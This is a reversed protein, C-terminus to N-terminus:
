SFLLVVNSRTFINSSCGPCAAEVSGGENAKDLFPKIIIPALFAGITYMFHFSQILPRSKEPGWVQLLIAQIAADLYGAFYGPLLILIILLWFDVVVPIFVVM